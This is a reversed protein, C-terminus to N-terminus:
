FNKKNTDDKSEIRNRNEMNKVEKKVISILNVIEDGSLQEQKTHIIDKQIANSIIEQLDEELQSRAISRFYKENELKNLSIHTFYKIKSLYIATSYFGNFILFISFGTLSYSIIGFPPFWKESLPPLTNITFFILMGFSTLTLFKKIENNGMKKAFIWMPLFFLFGTLFGSGSFLMMYISDYYPPIRILISTHIDNAFPLSNFLFYILPISYLILYIYTNISKLHFRLLSMSIIWISIFTVLFTVNYYNSFINPIPSTSHIYRYINESDIITNFNGINEYIYYLLSFIIILSIFIISLFNVFITKEKDIKYWKLFKIALLVTFLLGISYSILVILMSLIFHYNDQSLTQISITTLLILLIIQAIIVLKSSIILDRGIINKNEKILRNVHILILVISVITILIIILFILELSYSINFLNYQTAIGVISVDIYIIIIVLVFFVIPRNYVLSNFM